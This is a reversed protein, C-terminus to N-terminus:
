ATIPKVNRREQKDKKAFKLGQSVMDHFPNFRRKHSEIVDELEDIHEQRHLHSVNYTNGTASTRYRYLVKPTGAITMNAEVARLTLDLDSGYKYEPNMGGLTQWAKATYAGLILCTEANPSKQLHVRIKEPRTERGARETRLNGANDIFSMWGTMIDPEYGLSQWVSLQKMTARLRDPEAIDDDGQMFLWEAGQEIAVNAAKNFGASIGVGPFSKSCPSDRDPKLMSYVTNGTDDTSGDDHVVVLYEGDYDQNVVSRLSERLWVGKTDGKSYGNRTTMIFACKPLRM